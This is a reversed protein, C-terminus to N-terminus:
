RKSRRARFGGAPPVDNTLGFGRVEKLSAELQGISRRLRRREAASLGAEQRALFRALPSPGEDAEPEGAPAANDAAAARGIWGGWPAAAAVAAALPAGLALRAAKRRSMKM